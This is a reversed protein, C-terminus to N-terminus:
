CGCEKLKEITNMLDEKSLLFSTYGVANIKDCLENIDTDNFTYETDGYIATYKKDKTPIIFLRDYDLVLPETPKYKKIKVM